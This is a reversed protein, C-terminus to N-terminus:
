AAEITTSDGVFRLRFLENTRPVLHLGGAAPAQGQDQWRWFFLDPLNDIKEKEINTFESVFQIDEPDVIRFVSMQTTETVYHRPIVARPRRVACHLTVSINRGYAILVSLESPVSSASAFSDLEDLYVEVGPFARACRCLYNAEAALRDRDGLECDPRYLIRFPLHQVRHLYEHLQEPSELIIGPEFNHLPDFCLARTSQSLRARLLSTKGTGARGICLHVNRSPPM